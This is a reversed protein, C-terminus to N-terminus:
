KAAGRAALEDISPAQDKWCCWQRNGINIAPVDVATETCEPIEVIEPAIIIMVDTSGPRCSPEPETSAERVEAACGSLLLLSLLAAANPFNM